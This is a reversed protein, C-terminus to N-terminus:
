ELLRPYRGAGLGGFRMEAWLASSLSAALSALLYDDVAEEQYLTWTASARTLPQGALAAAMLPALLRQRTPLSSRRAAHAIWAVVWDSEDSSSLWVEIEEAVPAPYRHSIAAMYAGALPALAPFWRVARSLAGLEVLYDGAALYPISDRFDREIAWYKSGAEHQDLASTAEAFRQAFAEVLRPDLDVRYSAVVDDVNATWRYISDSVEDEDWDVDELGPIDDEASREGLGSSESVHRHREGLQHGESNGPRDLNAVYTATKMVRTKSGSLRLGLDALQGELLDIRRRAHQVSDCGILMDDVYRAYPFGSTASSQDIRALFATAFVDSALPGQPLGYESGMVADLFLELAAGFSPDTPAYDRQMMTALRKHSISEYFSEIDAVVVYDHQWLLPQSAYVGHALAAAAPDSARDRPWFVTPAMRDRVSALVTGALAEYVVRDIPALLSAPRSTM